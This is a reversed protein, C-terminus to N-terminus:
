GFIIGPTLKFKAVEAIQPTSAKTVCVIPVACNQTEKVTHISKVCTRPVIWNQLVCLISVVLPM